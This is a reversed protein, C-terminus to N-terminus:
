WCKRCDRFAKWATNLEYKLAEARSKTWTLVMGRAEIMDKASKAGLRQLLGAVTAADNMAGLINQLRAVRSLM